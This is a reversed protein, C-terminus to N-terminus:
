MDYGFGTFSRCTTCCLSKQSLQARCRGNHPGSGVGSFQCPCRRRRCFSGWYNRFTRCHLSDNPLADWNHSILKGPSDCRSPRHSRPRASLNRKRVHVQSETQLVRAVDRLVASHITIPAHLRSLPEQLRLGVFGFASGLGLGQQEIPNTSGGHGLSRGTKPVTVSPFGVHEGDM